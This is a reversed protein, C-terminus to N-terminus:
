RRHGRLLGADKLAQLCPRVDPYLDNSNLYEGVGENLRAQRANDLDVDPRFYRFV